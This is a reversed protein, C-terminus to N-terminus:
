AEFAHEITIARKFREALGSSADSPVPFATTISWTAAVKDQLRNQPSRLILRIGRTEVEIGANVTQFEGTKGTIGAESVYNKEEDLRKEYIVGRGTIVTRAVPVGSDNVTEAGIDESYTANTGTATRAGSNSFDPSENNLFFACGAITGLFAERYYVHDPLATNLRQFAPDAFVQENGDTPIHCHYYGDEHPSVNNKRLRSVARIVDQLTLIDSTGIADVSLGGGSRIIRPAYASIVPTRAAVGVGLAASLQLTGPGFPDDPNDPFFAIVNRTGTVGSIQVPLPITPSVVSPRVNLGRVIVDTFGNLAAVRITTDGALAAAITLTQGSTYAKFMENRPIRNLSQGAQLGLQHINRMFLNASAVASSPMHTDITGAYRRLIAVWQEYPVVQPVPDADAVLPKVIPDLLGPRTMFIETGTNAEWEEEMAESRYQLAPFLGDHFAREILGEQVLSLLSPPLGLFLSSVTM